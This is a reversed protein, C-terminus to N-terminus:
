WMIRRNSITEANQDSVTNAKQEGVWTGAKYFEVGFNNGIVNLWNSANLQVTGRFPYGKVGSYTFGRKEFGGGPAPALCGNTNNVTIEGNTTATVNGDTAVAHFTNKYWNADPSESLPPMTGGFTATIIPNNPVTNYFEYFIRGCGPNNSFRYDPADARGYLFVANGATGNTAGAKNTTNNEITVDSWGTDTYVASISLNAETANVEFPNIPNASDRAFNFKLVKSNNADNWALHNVGAAFGISAATINSENANGRITDIVSPMVSLPQEYLGSAFNLTTGGQKNQSTVILDFKASMNLDNSVYTFSGNRSDVIQIASATFQYPIFTFNGEGQITRDALITDGVDADVAAWNTDNLDLSIKGVDNFTMFANGISVGNALNFTNTFSATGNLTANVDYPATPMRKIGTVTINSSTQNYDLTDTNAGYQYAHLLINNDEGSKLLNVSAIPNLNIVFKDPRIAFTDRSCNNVGNVADSLCMLCGFANNYQAPSINGKSGSADYANSDCAAASTGVATVCVSVDYTPFLPSIKDNNGNLCQPVGKLNGTMGSNSVCNNGNFSSFSIRNWDIFYAKVRAIQKAKAVMTFLNSVATYQSTNHGFTAQVDGSTSIPSNETCTDDSLRFLVLMDYTAGSYITPLYNAPDIGLYVATLQTNPQAAIKTKLGTLINYDYTNDFLDVVDIKGGYPMLGGVVGATNINSRGIVTIHEHTAANYYDSYAINTVNAESSQNYDSRVKVSFQMLYRDNVAMYPINCWIKTAQATDNNAYDVSCNADKSLSACAPDTSGIACHYNAESALKLRISNKLVTANRDIVSLLMDGGVTSSFTDYITIKEAAETGSNNFDLTYQVGDGPNLKQTSSTNSDKRFASIDPSYIDTSFAIMGPFSQDSTNNTNHIGLRITTSTQNKDICAVAAGGSNKCSTAINYLDLDIGPNFDRGASIMTGNITMTDNLQAGVVNVSNFLDNLTGSKNAIQVKEGTIKRESGMTYFALSGTPTQSLPTLFGSINIDIQKDQNTPPLLFQFGDFISVNKYKQGSAVPREYEVILSWGGMPGWLVNAGVEPEYMQDDPGQTVKINGVTFTKKNTGNYGGNKIVDTVDATAQYFLRFGKTNTTDNLYTYYNVKTNDSINATVTHNTNDPTQLIVSNYGAIAADYAAQTATTGHIHGSWYLYAKTITADIPITLDASSSNLAIQATSVDTLFKSSANALYGNYTWDCQGNAKTVCLIPAGTINFDGYINDGTVGNTNRMTFARENKVIWGAFLTVNFIMVILTFNIFFRLSRNTRM